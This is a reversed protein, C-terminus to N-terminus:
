SLTHEKVKLMLDSWSLVCDKMGEVGLTRFVHISVRFGEVVWIFCLGQVM